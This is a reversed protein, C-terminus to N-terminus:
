ELLFQEAAIVEGGVDQQQETVGAHADAFRGVQGEIAEVGGAGILPGNLYREALQLRLPHDGDVREHASEDLTKAEEAREIGEGRVAPQQGTGASPFRQYALEASVQM